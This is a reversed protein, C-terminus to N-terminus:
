LGGPRGVSQNLVNSMGSQFGSAIGSNVQPNSTPNMQPMPMMPQQQMGQPMGPPQMNPPMMQPMMQPGQAGMQPMMPPQGQQNDAQTAQAGISQQSANLMQLHQQYHELFNNRIKDDLDKFEIRLMYQMHAEIHLKHDEYVLAMVREGSALKDNEDKAMNYNLDRLSVTNM